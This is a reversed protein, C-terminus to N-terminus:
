TNAPASPLPENIPRPGGGGIGPDPAPNNPDDVADNVDDRSPIEAALQKEEDNEDFDSGLRGRRKMERWLSRQSLDRQSRMALLTRDDSEGYLGFDMAIVVEPEVDEKLWMATIKLANELADKLRIAWAQLASNAKESAFASTLVTINDSEATLPQRGLERLEKKLDKTRADVFKLSEAGPELFQWEGHNGDGNPPAKLVTHPGIRVDVTKGQADELNIGNAALMPYCVLMETNKLGTERQYLEIQLNAAAKMPPDIVWSTGRRRGCIFPTAPIIGINYIGSDALKVKVEKGPTKTDDEVLEWVKFIPPGYSAPAPDISTKARTIERVQPVMTVKYGTKQKRFQLYRFTILEEKGSVMASDVELVMWAPIRFWYPRLNLKAEEARSMNPDAKPYDVFIWDIAANIGNYFVDNAFVHIHSGKGDIDEILGGTKKAPDGPRPTGIFDAGATGERISLEDEFPKAALTEIIDSYINTFVGNNLRYTYDETDEEPFMPLYDAGRARIAELGCLIDAAVRWYPMMEENDPSPTFPGKDEKDTIGPLDRPITQPPMQSRAANVSM